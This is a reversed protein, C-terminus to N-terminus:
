FLRIRPPVFPARRHLILPLAPNLDYLCTHRSPLLPTHRRQTSSYEVNSAVLVNVLYTHKGVMPQRKYVISCALTLSQSYCWEIGAMGESTSNPLNARRRCTGDDVSYIHIMHFLPMQIASNQHTLSRAPHILRQCSWVEEDCICVPRRHQCTTSFVPVSRQNTHPFDNVDILVRIIRVSM